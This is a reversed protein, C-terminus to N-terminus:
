FLFETNNERRLINVSAPTNKSQKRAIIEDKYKDPKEYYGISEHNIIGTIKLKSTDKEFNLSISANNGRSSFDNTTRITGKTYAHAIYSLLKKNREHKAKITRRIIELAPNEHPLVTIEGM